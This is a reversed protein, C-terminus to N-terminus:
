NRPLHDCNDGDRFWRLLLVLIRRHLHSNRPSLRIDLRCRRDVIWRWWVMDLPLDQLLSFKEALHVMTRARYSPQPSSGSSKRPIARARRRSIGALLNRAFKSFSSVFNEESLCSWSYRSQCYTGSSYSSRNVDAPAHLPALGSLIIM